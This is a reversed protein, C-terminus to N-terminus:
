RRRGLVYALTGGILGTALLDFGPMVLYLVPSLGCGIAVAALDMPSRSTAILSLIFYLPTMFLLAATVLAPV